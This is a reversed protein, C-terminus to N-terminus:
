RNKRDYKLRLSELNEGEVKLWRMGEEKLPDVNDEGVIQALQSRREDTDQSPRSKPFKGLASRLVDARQKAGIEELAQLAEPWRDGYSSFFYSTFGGNRISMDMEREPLTVLDESSGELARIAEVARRSVREDEHGAFAEFLDVDEKNRHAALASICGAFARTQPRTPNQVKSLKDALRILRSRSLRVSRKNVASLLVSLRDFEPDLLDNQELRVRAKDEDIALLAEAVNDLDDNAPWLTAIADFLKDAIGPGFEDKARRRVGSLFSDALDENELIQMMQPLWSKGGSRGVVAAVEEVEDASADEAFARFAVLVNESAVDESFVFLRCLRNFPTLQAFGDGTSTLLKEKLAPDSLLQLTRPELQRGLRHLASSLEFDMGDTDFVFHDLLKAVRVPDGNAENFLSDTRSGITNEESLDPGSSPNRVADWFSGAMESEEEPKVFALWFGAALLVAILLAGCVALLKM